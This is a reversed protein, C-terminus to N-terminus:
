VEVRFMGVVTLVNVVVVVRVDSAGIDVLAVTLVVVRLGEVSVRPLPVMIAVRSAVM